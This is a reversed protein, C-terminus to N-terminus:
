GLQEFVATAWAAAGRARQALVEILSTALADQDVLTAACVAEVWDAPLSQAGQYAGAMAGAITAITDADRGFNACGLITEVPDGDALYLVALAVAVSERPDVATSYGARLGPWPRLMSAYFRDRFEEYSDSNRALTMTSNIAEIMESGTPLHAVAAEAITAPTAEKAFAAATAAAAAGAGELPFGRHILRAVSLAERCAAAPNGANVIGVPSICMASSNSVMNGVGVEGPPVNQLVLRYYANQV